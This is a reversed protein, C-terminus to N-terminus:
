AKNLENIIRNVFEKAAAPGQATIIKKAVAVPSDTYIAKERELERKDEPWCTASLGELIGARAMIVSASCIAATIKKAQAFKKAIIHLSLNDWYNKVGRGGIFVIAEFNAEKMNFFSVDNKVKLGNQGACISNADSAIFVKFGNKVLEGYVTLYEQENFDVAPVILLVSKSPM